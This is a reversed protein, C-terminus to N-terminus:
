DDFYAEEVEEQYEERAEEIDSSSASSDNLAEQYEERASAISEQDSHSVPNGDIDLPPGQPAPEGYYPQTQPVPPPAHHHEDDSDDQGM